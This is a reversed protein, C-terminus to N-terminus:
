FTDGDNLSAYTYLCRYFYQTWNISKEGIVITNFDRLIISFWETSIVSDGVTLFTIRLLKEGSTVLSELKHV